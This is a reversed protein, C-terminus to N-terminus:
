GGFFEGERRERKEKKKKERREKKTKEREERERERENRYWFNTHTGNKTHIIEDVAAIEESSLVTSIIVVKQKM